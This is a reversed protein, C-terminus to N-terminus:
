RDKKGLKFGLFTYAELDEKKISKVEDGRHVYIRGKNFSRDNVKVEPEKEEVKTEVSEKISTIEEEKPIDVKYLKSLHNILDDDSIYYLTSYDMASCLIQGFRMAPYKKLLRKFFELKVDISIM